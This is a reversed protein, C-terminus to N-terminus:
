KEAWSGVVIVEAKVSAIKLLTRGSDQMTDKPILAVESVTELQAELLIEDHICLSPEM